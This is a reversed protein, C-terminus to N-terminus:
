DVINFAKELDLKIIVGQNKKRFWEDIIKNAILSADLIQIRAIFAYQVESITSPFM